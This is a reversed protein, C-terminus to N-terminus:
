NYGVLFLLALVFLLHDIGSLIHEIGLITYASAIEGMGRQDEASGYLHVAPQASTLTYVRTQGDSWNVRVLAASYNRGIGNIALTGRLGQEACRLLNTESTCGEPWVPTLEGEVPRESATWQWLFQGAAIEHMEMEAMTMEHAAAGAAALALVIFFL